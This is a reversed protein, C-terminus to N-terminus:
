AGFPKYTVIFTPNHEHINHYKFAVITKSADTILGNPGPTLECRHRMYFETGDLCLVSAFGLPEFHRPVRTTSVIERGVQHWEPPLAAAVGNNYSVCGWVNRFDSCRGILVNEKDNKYALLEVGALDWAVIHKHEAPLWKLRPEGAALKEYYVKKAYEAALDCTERVVDGHHPSPNAFRLSFDSM